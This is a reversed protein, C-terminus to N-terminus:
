EGAPARRFRDLDLAYREQATKGRFSVSQGRVCIEGDLLGPEVDMWKGRSDLAIWADEGNVALIIQGYSIRGLKYYNTSPEAGPM